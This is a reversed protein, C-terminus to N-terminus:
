NRALGALVAREREPDLGHQPRGPVPEPDGERQLWDWTDAVTERVPRCSLGTALAASVDGDHLGAAEGDPPLWIPLEV